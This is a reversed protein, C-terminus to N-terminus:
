SELHPAVNYSTLTPKADTFRVSTSATNRPVVLTHRVGFSVGIFSAVYARIVAAHSVVAVDGAATDVVSEVASAMRKAADVFTEGDGGFPLDVGHEFIQAFATPDALRAEDRTLNEWAGFAIEIFGEAVIPTLGQSEGLIEATKRTRGLPSCFLQAVAPMQSMAARAQEKGRDSLPSDTHGNWRGLRNSETQGHRILTVATGRQGVQVATENLHTADNFVILQPQEEDLITVVTVAANSAISMSTTQGTRGLVHSLLASIAGAHTVIRVTEGDQMSAVLADFAAVVRRTFGSMLEGGGPAVDKGAIFAELEQPFQETIEHTTMGEWTGIDCERWAADPVPDDTLLVATEMARRLDSTIVRVAPGNQFKLGLRRAQEVGLASLGSDSLGQWKLESNADSEGHRILEITRVPRQDPHSM